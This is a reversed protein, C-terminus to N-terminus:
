APSSSSVVVVVINSVNPHSKQHVVVIQTSCSTNKNYAFSHCSTRNASTTDRAEPRQCCRLHTWDTFPLAIQNAILLICTSTGIDIDMLVDKSNIRSFYCEIFICHYESFYHIAHYNCFLSPANTYSHVSQVARLHLTALLPLSRFFFTFYRIRQPDQHRRQIAM